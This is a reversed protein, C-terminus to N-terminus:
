QIVTAEDWADEFKELDTEINVPRMENITHHKTGSHAFTHGWVWGDERDRFLLRDHFPWEGRYELYRLETEGSRGDALDSFKDKNEENIERDTCLVKIDVVDPVDDLMEDYLKGQAFPDVIIIENRALEVIDRFITMAREEDGRAISYQAWQTLPQTRPISIGENQYEDFRNRGQATIELHSGGQEEVLGKEKLYWVNVKFDQEDIGLDERLEDRTVFVGSSGAHERDIDYLEELIVYRLDDDLITEYGERDLKEVGEDTIRVFSIRQGLSGEIDVLRNDDMRTLHYVVDDEAIHDLAENIADFGAQRRIQQSHEDYVQQLIERQIKEDSAAM